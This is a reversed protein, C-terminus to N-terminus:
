NRRFFRSVYLVVCNGFTARGVFSLYVCINIFVQNARNECYKMVHFEIKKTDKEKQLRSNKHLLIGFTFITFILLQELSDDELGAVFKNSKPLDYYILNFYPFYKVM